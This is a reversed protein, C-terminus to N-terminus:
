TLLLPAAAGAIRLAPAAYRGATTVIHSGTTLVDGVGRLLSSVSSGWSSTSNDRAKQTLVAKAAIDDQHSRTTASVPKGIYEVHVCVDYIVGQGSVGGSLMVLMPCAGRPAQHVQGTWPYYLPEGRAWPYWATQLAVASDNVSPGSFWGQEEEDLPGSVLKVAARSVAKSKFGPETSIKPLSNGFNDWSSALSSGDPSIMANWTGSMNLQTGTYTASVGVAVIRAGMRNTKEFFHNSSFPLGMEFSKVHGGIAGSAPDVIVAASDSQVYDFNNTYGFPADSIVTPCILVFSCGNTGITSQIRLRRFVKMSNRVPDIPLCAGLAADSWPDALASAFKRTCESVVVKQM